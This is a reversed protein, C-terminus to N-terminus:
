GIEGAYNTGKLVVSVLDSTELSLEEDENRDSLLNPTRSASMIIMHEVVPIYCYNHVRYVIANHVM